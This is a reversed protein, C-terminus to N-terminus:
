APPTEEAIKAPTKPLVTIPNKVGDIRHAGYVAVPILVLSRLDFLAHVVIPLLISGTTAYLLMMLAGVIATGIIGVPGQYAHLAGFLLVSGLVAAVASGTAGFILAPLALRFLLEELIGANISLLGGLALEQRNRPLMARIDGITPVETEKRAAVIGVITLATGVIVVGVVLGVALGTQSAFLDRIDSVVPWQILEQLLPGVSAWALVLVIATLGGFTLVSERLWKRFMAQRKRTTRYRKFRQYERRDKRVSRVVLLVLVGLLVVWLIPRTFPSDPDLM